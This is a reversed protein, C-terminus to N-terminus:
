NEGSKLKKLVSFSSRVPEFDPEDTVIYQKATCHELPHMFEYPLCLLLEDEIMEYFDLVKTGSGVIQELWPEWAGELLQAERENKVVKLSLASEVDFTGPEYCRDCALIIAANLTGHICVQESHDQNFILSVTVAANTPQSFLASVRPFSSLLITGEFRFNPNLYSMASIFQLFKTNVM